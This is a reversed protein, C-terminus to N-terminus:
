EEETRNRLHELFDKMFQEYIIHKMMKDHTEGMVGDLEVGNWEKDWFEIMEDNTKSVIDELYIVSIDCCNVGEDYRENGMEQPDTKTM